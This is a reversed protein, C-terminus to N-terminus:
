EGVIMIKLSNTRGHVGILDGKTIVIRDGVQLIGKDQLTAIATKNLIRRDLHTPEFFFLIFM